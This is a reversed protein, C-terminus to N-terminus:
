WTGNYQTGFYDWYTWSGTGNLNWIVYYTKVSGIYYTYHGSGNVDVYVEMKYISGGIGDGINMVFNISGAETYTWSYELSATESFTGFVKMSGVTGAKNEEVYLYNTRGLGMYDVDYSWTYKDSEETYTLWVTVSANDTWTWTYAGDSKTKVFEANEPVELYNLYSTIGTIMDFYSACMQANPDMSNALAQPKDAIKSKSSLSPKAMEDPKIESKKCSSALGIILFFVAILVLNKSKM